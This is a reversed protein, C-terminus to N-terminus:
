SSIHLHQENKLKVEMTKNQAVRRLPKKKPSGIITLSESPPTFCHARGFSSMM